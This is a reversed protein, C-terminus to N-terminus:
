AADGSIWREGEAHEHLLEDIEREFSEDRSLILWFGLAGLVLAVTFGLATPWLVALGGAAAAFGLGSLLAFPERM